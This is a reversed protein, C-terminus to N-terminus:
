VPRDIYLTGGRRVATFTKLARDAPGHLLAATKPSGPGTVRASSTAATPSILSTAPATRPM